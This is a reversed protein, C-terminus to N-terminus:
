RDGVVQRGHEQWLEGGAQVLQQALMGDVESGTGSSSSWVWPQLMRATRGPTTTMTSPLGTVCRASSSRPQSTCVNGPPSTHMLPEPPGVQMLRGIRRPHLVQARGLQGRHRVDIAIAHGVVQRREHRDGAQRPVLALHLGLDGQAHRGRAEVDLAEVRRGDVQDGIGVEGADLDRAVRVRDDDSPQRAVGGAPPDQDGPMDVHDAGAVLEPPCRRRKPRPDVVANQIAATCAVHLAADDGAQRRQPRDASASTSSAPSAISTVTGPSSSPPAPMSAAIRAPQVPSQATIVSGVRRSSTVACAPAIVNVSVMVPLLACAANRRRPTEATELSRGTM